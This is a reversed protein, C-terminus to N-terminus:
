GRPERPAGRMAAGGVRRAHLAAAAAGDGKAHGGGRRAGTRRGCVRCRGSWWQAARAGLRVGDTV